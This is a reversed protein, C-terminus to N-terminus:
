HEAADFRCVSEDVVRACRGYEAFACPEVQHENVYGWRRDGWRGGWGWADAGGQRCGTSGTAAPLSAPSDVSSDATCVVIAVAGFLSAAILVRM